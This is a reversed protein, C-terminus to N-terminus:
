SMRVRAGRLASPTSAPTSFNIRVIDLSKIYPLGIAALTSLILTYLLGRIFATQLKSYRLASDPLQESKADTGSQALRRLKVRQFAMAVNIIAQLVILAIAIFLV